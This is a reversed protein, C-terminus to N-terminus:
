LSRLFTLVQEQDATGLAEFRQRSPLAEGAHRLTADRVTLSRGDHMLRSRARLGWLPATRLLSAGVQHGAQMSLYQKGHHEAVALVIGDGTGVDHLLYDGYPHFAKSGLAPPVVFAGAHLQTGAAATILTPLHCVACGISQFLVEGNKAAPTAALQSARPPAKTARVFRAFRDIDSLGQADPRDEPDSVADCLTTVETPLLRSTIGMENLYADAAFSLLSAQQNKWGFRGARYLGPAELVPVSNIKGCVPGGLQQCQWSAIAKFTEEPVAEVFGDGFLSVSLRLTRINESDPVHEVLDLDPFARNPCIARENVLTRGTIVAAGGAIPISPNGFAGQADRHGVRLETVQSSGGTAPTDHCAGCSRANYLPGLGRGLDEAEEFTGRDADFTAQDVLGNSLSDFAAPAEAAAPGGPPEFRPPLPPAVACGTVGLLALHVIRRM